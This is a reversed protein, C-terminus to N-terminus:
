LQERRSKKIIFFYSICLIMILMLWFLFYNKGRTSDAVLYDALNFNFFYTDVIGSQYFQYYKIGILFFLMSPLISIYYYKSIFLTCAFTVVSCVGALAAGIVSLYINYIIPHNIYTDLMNFQSGILINKDNILYDTFLLNALSVGHMDQKSDPFFAYSFVINVISPLLFVIFAGLFCVVSKSIYYKKSGMKNIFVVDCGLKRDEIYSFSFPLASIIPIMYVICNSLVSNRDFYFAYQAGTVNCIDDNKVISIYMYIIPIAVAILMMVSFAIKFGKKNLM